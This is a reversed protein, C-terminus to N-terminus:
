QYIGQVIGQRAEEWSLGGDPNAEFDALRRELEEKLEDSVPVNAPVARLSDWILELLELREAAPLGLIEAVPLNKIM